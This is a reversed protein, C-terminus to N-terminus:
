LGNVFRKQSTPTVQVTSGKYDGMREKDLVEAIMHGVTKYEATIKKSVNLCPDLYKYDTNGKVSKQIARALEVKDVASHVGNLIITHTM